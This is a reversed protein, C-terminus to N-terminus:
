IKQFNFVIYIIGDLENSQENTILSFFYQYRFIYSLPSVFDYFLPPHQNSSTQYLKSAPAFSFIMKLALLPCNPNKSFDFIQEDHTLNRTYV